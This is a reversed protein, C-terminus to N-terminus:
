YHECPKCVLQSLLHLEELVPSTKGALVPHIIADQQPIAAAVSQPTNQTQWGQPYTVQFRMGPHYFTTGEFFGQRPDEGYVMNQVHQLYGDRNVVAQSLDKHVSDLMSTIHQIRAGPNPHTALWDP